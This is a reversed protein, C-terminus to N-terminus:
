KKRTDPFTKNKLFDGTENVVARKYAEGLGPANPSKPVFNTVGEYEHGFVQFSGDPDQKKVNCDIYKVLLYKDLKEWKDFLEDQAKVSFDTLYKVAKKPSSKLLEMARADSKEVQKMMSLEHEIVKERTEKGVWKYNLYCQQAVRNVLWFMSTPSYTVQSGNGFRYHDSIERSCAYVPTIPATGPDDVAFWIVPGVERPLYGRAQGIFWFGTQQVAIPRENRYKVGDVTWDNDRWRYPCEMPGAAVGKRMDFPTGEYHDRMMEAVDHVSLKAKAKVYLPLHHSINEGTVYDLYQDMDEDGWQRFFSWVRMDCSRITSLSLVPCYADRFSFEEDPGDYWGMERAQEIVDKSYLCNEPDNLPFRDIRACNAHASIYGDPIRIAVYVIGKNTNNGNADYKPKRPMIDMIWAENADAISLTEGTNTYGYKDTIEVMTAIAERATRSRQLAINMMSGYDIIATTDVFSKWDGDYTTEGIIVQYENMNSIVNYTCEAEPISGTYRFAGKADSGWQYIGRLEGKKHHGGLRYDLVGYRTQSDAADSVMVSGDVSAGKTIILNTCAYSCVTAM